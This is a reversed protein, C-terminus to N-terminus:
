RYIKAHRRRFALDVVSCVANEFKSMALDEPEGSSGNPHPLPGKAAM